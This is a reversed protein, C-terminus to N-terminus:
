EGVLTGLLKAVLRSLVRWTHAVLAHIRTYRNSPRNSFEPYPCKRDTLSHWTQWRARLHPQLIVTTTM